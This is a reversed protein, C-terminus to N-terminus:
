EVLVPLARSLAAAQTAHSRPKSNAGASLVTENIFHGWVVRGGSSGARCISTQRLQRRCMSRGGSSIRQRRDVTAQSTSASRVRYDSLHEPRIRHVVGSNDLFITVIRADNPDFYTRHSAGDEYGYPTERRLQQVGLLESRSTAPRRGAAPVLEATPRRTRTPRSSSDSRQSGERPRNGPEDPADQRVPDAALRREVAIGPNRRTASFLNNASPCLPTYNFSHTGYLSPCGNM